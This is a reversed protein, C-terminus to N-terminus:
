ERRGLGLSRDRYGVFGTGSCTRQAKCGRVVLASSLRGTLGIPAHGREGATFYVYNGDPSLSLEEVQQDFGRTIETSAGTARNYAMLRWRDAEFGAIAQSRYVIYRGDRTYVPGADYGRNRATINKAPGGSIPVVYIDSNTSIAEVKDPNRLYALEKSDPSFAYDVGTAAAYPPSDFDGPTLDRATGGKSPAVFVHTRKVDRWETWHRFLLRNTLHAKVKSKEAQEDKKKNCEDDACDPYVESTFAFWKGDPSWVPAAAETSIKTIQNKNDGDSDMVWVQGATTYAIKKGDTGNEKRLNSSADCGL